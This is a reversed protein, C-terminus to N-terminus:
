CQIGLAKLLGPLTAVTGYGIPLKPVSTTYAGKSIVKTPAVYDTYKLLLEKDFIYEGIGKGVRKLQAIYCGIKRIWAVQQDLFYDELFHVMHSDNNKEALDHLQLFAQNLSKELELAIQMCELPSGWTDNTPKEINQLVVRGGRKNLYKMLKEAFVEMDWTSSHRFFRSFGKLAVDERDFYFGMSEYVYSSTICMHIQDNIGKENDAHFNQRITKSSVDSSVNSSSVNSSSVDSTVDESGSTQKFQQKSM